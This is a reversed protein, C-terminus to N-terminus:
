ETAKRPSPFQPLSLCISLHNAQTSDVLVKVCLLLLRFSSLSTLRPKTHSPMWFLAESGRSSSNYLHNHSGSMTSLASKTDEALATYTRLRQALKEARGRLQKQQSYKIVGISFFSCSKIM